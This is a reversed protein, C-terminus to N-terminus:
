PIPSYVIPRNLRDEVVGAGGGILQLVGLAKGLGDVLVVLVIRVAGRGRADFDVDNDL